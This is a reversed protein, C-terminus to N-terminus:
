QGPAATWDRDHNQTTPPRASSFAAPSPGSSADPPAAPQPEGPVGSASPVSGPASPGPTSGPAGPTIPAAPSSPAPAAPPVVPSLSGPEPSVPTTSEPSRRPVVMQAREPLYLAGKQGCGALQLALAIGCCTLLGRIAASM